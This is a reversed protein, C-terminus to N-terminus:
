AYGQQMMKTGTLQNVAKNMLNKDIIGKESVSRALFVQTLRQREKMSSRTGLGRYNRDDSDHHFQAM